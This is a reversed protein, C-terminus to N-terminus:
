EIIAAQISETKQKEFSVQTKKVIIFILFMIRSGGM